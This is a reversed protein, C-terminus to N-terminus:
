LTPLTIGEFALHVMASDGTFNDNVCSTDTGEYWCVMTYKLEVESNEDQKSSDFKGLYDLRNTFSDLNGTTPLDEHYNKDILDNEYPVGGFHNEENWGSRISGDLHTCDNKDRFLALVRTNLDENGNSLLCVRFSKEAKPEIEKSKILEFRSKAIGDLISTNLYLGLNGENEVFTHKFSLSFFMATYVKNEKNLYYDRFLLSEISADSLSFEGKEDNRLSQGLPDPTYFKATKHDFSGDTLLNKTSVKKEENNVIVGVGEEISLSIKDNTEFEALTYEQIPEVEREEDDDKDCGSLTIGLITLLSFLLTVKKM